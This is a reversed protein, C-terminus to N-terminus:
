NMHVKEGPEITFKESSFFVFFLFLFFFFVVVVVVNSGIMHM